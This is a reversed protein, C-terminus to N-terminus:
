STMTAIFRQGEQQRNVVTPLFLRVASSLDAVDTMEILTLALAEREAPSFKGTPTTRVLENMRQEVATSVTTSATTSVATSVTTPATTSVSNSLSTSVTTPAPYAYPRVLGRDVLHHLIDSDLADDTTAGQYVDIGGGHRRSWEEDMKTNETTLEHGLNSPPANGELLVRVNNEYV